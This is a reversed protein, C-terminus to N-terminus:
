QPNINTPDARQAKGVICRCKGNFCSLTGGPLGFLQLEVPEDDATEVEASIGGELNIERHAMRAIVNGEALISKLTQEPPQTIQENSLRESVPLGEGDVSFLRVEVPMNEQYLVQVRRDGQPTQVHYNEYMTQSDTSERELAFLLSKADTAESVRGLPPNSAWCKQLAAPFPESLADPDIRPPLGAIEGVPEEVKVTSKAASDDESTDAPTTETPTATAQTASTDVHNRSWFFIAILAIAILAFVVKSRSSGM